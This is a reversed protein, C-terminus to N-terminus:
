MGLIQSIKQEYFQNNLTTLNDTRNINMQMPVGTQQAIQENVIGALMNHDVNGSGSIMLQVNEGKPTVRATPSTLLASPAVEVPSAEQQAESGEPTPGGKIASGIMWMAAMGAGAKFANSDVVHRTTGRLSEWMNQVNEANRGAMNQLKIANMHRFQTEAAESLQGSVDQEDILRSFNASLISSQKASQNQYSALEGVTLQKGAIEDTAFTHLFNSEGSMISQFIEAESDGSSRGLALSKEYLGGYGSETTAENALALYGFSEKMQEYNSEDIIKNEMAINLFGDLNNTKLNRIGSIIDQTRGIYGIAQQNVYERAESDSLSSLLNADIGLSDVTVKKASILQQIFTNTNEDVMQTMHNYRNQSIVGSDLASTFVTQSLNRTAVLMNDTQGIASGKLYNVVFDQAFTDYGQYHKFYQQNESLSLADFINETYKGPGGIIEGLKSSRYSMDEQVKRMKDWNVNKSGTLYGDLNFYIHDGDYDARLLESLEPSLYAGEKLSEDIRLSTMNFNGMGQTPFRSTESFLEFTGEGRTGILQDLIYDTHSGDITSPNINNMRLIADEHGSIMASVDRRPLFVENARAAIEGTEYAYRNYTQAKTVMGIEARYGMTNKIYSGGKSDTLYQGTADQYNALNRAFRESNSKVQSQIDAIQLDKVTMVQNDYAANYLEAFAKEGSRLHGSDYDSGSTFRGIVPVFDQPLTRSGEMQTKLYAQKNGNALYEGLSMDLKGDDSKLHISMPDAMTNTYSPNKGGPVRGLSAANVIYSGTTEDFRTNIGDVVDFPGTIDFIVNGQKFVSDQNVDGNTMMNIARGAFSEHASSAQNGRLFERHQRYISENSGFLIRDTMQEVQRERHASLPRTGTGSYESTNHKLVQFMAYDSSFGYNSKAENLAKVYNSQGVAGVMGAQYGVDSLIYRGLKKDFSVSDKLGFEAMMPFLTQELVQGQVDASVLDQVTINNAKMFAPLKDKLGPLTGSALSGSIHINELDELINEQVTDFLINLVSGLNRKDVNTNELIMDVVRGNQNYRNMIRDPVIRTTYRGDGSGGIIKSTNQLINREELILSTRGQDQAIGIIRANKSIRKSTGGSGTKGEVFDEMLSGVKLAGHEDIIGMEGMQAYTIAEQFLHQESKLGLSANSPFSELGLDKAFYSRLSEPLAENQPVIIDKRYETMMSSAISERIMSQGDYVSNNIVFHKDKELQKIQNLLNAKKTPDGELNASIELNAIDNNIGNIVQRNQVALEKDNTYSARLNVSMVEQSNKSLRANEDLDAVGIANSTSLRRKIASDTLGQRELAARLPERQMAIYNEAKHIQERSSANYAGLPVSSRTDRLFAKGDMFQKANLGGIYLQVNDASMQSNFSQYFDMLHKEKSTQGYQRWFSNDQLLNKASTNESQHQKWKQWIDPRELKIFADFGSTTDVLYGQSAARTRSFVQQVSESQSTHSFSTFQAGETNRAYIASLGGQIIESDHIPLGFQKAHQRKKNMSFAQRDITDFYSAIASQTKFEISGSGSHAKMKYSHSVTGPGVDIGFNNNMFPLPQLGIQSNQDMAEYSMNGFNVGADKFSFAMFSQNTNPNHVLAVNYNQEEYKRITQQLREQVNLRDSHKRVLEKNIEGQDFGFMKQGAYITQDMSDLIDQTRKVSELIGGSLNQIDSVEPSMRLSAQEIAQEKIAKFFENDPSALRNSFDDRRSGGSFRANLNRTKVTNTTYSSDEVLNYTRSSINQITQQTVYGKTQIDQNVAQRLQNVTDDDLAKPMNQIFSEFNNRIGAPGQTNGGRMIRQISSSYAEPSEVNMYTIEGAISRRIGFLKMNDHGISMTPESMNQYYGEFMSNIFINQQQIGSWSNTKHPGYLSESEQLVKMNFARDAQLVERERIINEMRNFDKKYLSGEEKGANIQDYVLQLAEKSVDQTAESSISLSALAHEYKDIIDYADTIRKYASDNRNTMRSEFLREYTRRSTDKRLYARESPTVASAPKLNGDQFYSVLRNKDSDMVVSMTGSNIDEFMMAYMNVGNIEPGQNIGHFVYERGRALAPSQYSSAPMWKGTEKNQRMVMSYENQNRSYSNDGRFTKFGETAIFTGSGPTYTSRQSQNLLTQGAPDNKFFNFLEGTMATDAGAFHAQMNESGSDIFGFVTSLTTNNASFNDKVSIVAKTLPLGDLQASNFTRSFNGGTSMYDKFLYQMGQKDFGLNNYGAWVTDEGSLKNLIRYTDEISNTLKPNSINQLGQKMAQMNKSSLAATGHISPKTEAQGTLVKVVSGDPLIEQSFHNADQYLGLDILTRRKNESFTHWLEPTKELQKLDSALSDYTSGSIQKALVLANEAELKGDIVKHRHVSIQPADFLEFNEGSGQLSFPSSGLTELDYVNVESKINHFAQKTEELNLGSYGDIEYFSVPNGSVVGDSAIQNLYDSVVSQRETLNGNNGWNNFSPQSMYPVQLPLPSAPKIGAQSLRKSIENPM